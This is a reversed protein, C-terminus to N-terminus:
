KGGGRVFAQVDSVVDAQSYLYGDDRGWLQSHISRVDYEAAVIDTPRNDFPIGLAQEALDGTRIPESTINVLPLGADVIRCLDGWLRPLGYYQFSGDAHIRELANDHLLDYIVNKKLGPGFLGPLRVVHTTPFQRRVFDELELRHAGYPHLGQVEIHTSEDVDRPTGYVDVTSILIVRDAEILSLHHELEAIHAADAEPDQNIRWKEARAASFVVLDFTRGHAEAINASNFEYDFTHSRRLNSGVFGSYGILASAM